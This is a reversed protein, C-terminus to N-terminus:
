GRLDGSQLASGLCPAGGVGWCYCCCFWFMELSIKAPYVRYSEFASAQNGGSDERNTVVTRTRPEEKCTHQISQSSTGDKSVSASLHGGRHGELSCFLMTVTQEQGLQPSLREQSIMLKM